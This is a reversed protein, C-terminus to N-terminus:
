DRPSPSTYLLCGNRTSSGEAVFATNHWGAGVGGTGGITTSNASAGDVPYGGSGGGGGGGAIIGYNEIFLDIGAGLKIAHGGDSGNGGIM